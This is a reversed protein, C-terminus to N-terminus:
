RIIKLGTKIPRKIEKSLEELIKPYKKSLLNLLKHYDEISEKLFKIHNSPKLEEIKM